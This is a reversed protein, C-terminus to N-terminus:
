GKLKKLDNYLSWLVKHGEEFPRFSNGANSLAQMQEDSPQWTNQPQVNRKKLYWIAASWGDDFTPEGSNYEIKDLADNYADKKAQALEEDAVNIQPQVREKLSKLWDIEKRLQTEDYANQEILEEIDITIYNIMREDEESWAPKQEIKKLEKKEFDFEYGSEKMKQFLLDRQEKNAPHVNTNGECCTRADEFHYFVDNILMCYSVIHSSLVRKYIFVINEVALVDGDKADQITWLHYMDCWSGSFYVDDDLTFGDGDKDVSVVQNVKGYNTVVWDGVKFKSEVKPAFDKQQINANEYDFPKQEVFPSNKLAKEKTLLEQKELWAISKSVAEKEAGYPLNLVRNNLYDILWKRIKEDESEKLEPFIQECISPGTSGCRVWTGKNNILRAREIAEDYRKAKEEIAKM